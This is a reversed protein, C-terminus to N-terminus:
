TVSCCLCHTLRNPEYGLPRHNLDVWGFVVRMRFELRRPEGGLRQQIRTQVCFGVSKSYLRGSTQGLRMCIAGKLTWTAQAAAGERYRNVTSSRPMAMGSPTCQGAHSAQGKPAPKLHRKVLNDPHLMWGSRNTFLSIGRSM